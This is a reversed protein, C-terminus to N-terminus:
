VGVKRADVEIRLETEDNADDTKVTFVITYRGSVSPMMMSAQWDCETGPVRTMTTASITTRSLDIITARVYEGPGVATLPYGSVRVNPLVVTKTSGSAVNM